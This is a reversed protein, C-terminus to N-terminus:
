PRESMEAPKHLVLIWERSILNATKNRKTMLGRSKITDVLRLRVTFGSAIAFQRLYKETPFPSGCLHNNGIILILHGGPRLAAYLTDIIQKMESLYTDAIKGRLPNIADTKRILRQAHLIEPSSRISVQSKPFHERGVVQDELSRLEHSKALGLWGLNLSSARIYKQAGLYPPSTIILDVCNTGLQDRITQASSLIRGKDFPKDPPSDRLNNLTTSVVSRFHVFADITKLRILRDATKKRFPHGKPYHDLKLRVPVSLRPDANSLDRSCISLCIMFFDRTKSRPLSGIADALRALQHKVTSGYWLDVNVVDPQLVERDESLLHEIKILGDEITKVNTTGLKVRSILRALPNVDAGIWHRKRYAAELLVTGTGCFPDLVVDGPSSLVDNSLFFRPIEALLKAPYPHVFHRGRVTRPLLRAEKRFDVPIAKGTKEYRTLLASLRGCTCAESGKNALCV